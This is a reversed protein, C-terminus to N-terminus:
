VQGPVECVGEESQARARMEWLMLGQEVHAEDEHQLLTHIQEITEPELSTMTVLKSPVPSPRFSPYQITSLWFVISDGAVTRQLPKSLLDSRAVSVAM